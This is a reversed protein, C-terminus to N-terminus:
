DLSNYEDKREINWKLFEDKLKRKVIKLM